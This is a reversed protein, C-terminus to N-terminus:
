ATLANRCTFFGPDRRRDDLDHDPGSGGGRPMSGTHDHEVHLSPLAVSGALLARVLPVPVKLAVSSVAPLWVIVAVSVKVLLMVPVLLLMATLAAAAVCKETLAVAPVENLKVTVASSWDLEVVRGGVVGASHVEGAAVAVGSQRGVTGQGVAGAGQARGAALRDGGSVKVLLMVPVLLLM